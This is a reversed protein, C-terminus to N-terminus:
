PTIFIRYGSTDTCDTLSVTISSGKTKQRAESITVPGSSVTTRNVWDVKEVTVLPNSTLWSPLNNVSVDILGDNTGGFLVSVYKNDKDVCAFGDVMTSNEDPPTVKVMNGSMEGYWEYFYWGGAKQVGDTLLSGLYGATGPSFWWSINASDVKYREFKAIYAAHSGPCGEMDKENVGAGYENICIPLEPIGLQKELNRYDRINNAMTALSGLEHWSIKDPLCNNTICYELFKQMIDRSYYTRTPGIIDAGPDKSRILDYTQKWFDYFSIGYSDYWTENWIEYGDFNDLGSALKDDIFAGVKQLWSTMGPFSYPWNPLIDALRIQVLIGTDKLRNAVTLADATLNQQYGSGSRAPQTYVKPGLPMVLANIDAPVTKTVGYLAGSACHTVERIISGCDVKLMGSDSSENGSGNGNDNASNNECGALVLVAIIAFFLRKM